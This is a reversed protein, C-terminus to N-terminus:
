LVCLSALADAFSPFSGASPGAPPRLEGLPSVALLSYMPHEELREQLFSGLLILSVVVM